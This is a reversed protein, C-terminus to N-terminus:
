ANQITSLSLTQPTQPAIIYSSHKLIFDNSQLFVFGFIAIYTQCYM